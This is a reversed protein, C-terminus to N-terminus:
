ILCNFLDERLVNFHCIKTKTIKSRLNQLINTLVNENENDGNLVNLINNTDQLVITDQELNSDRHASFEPTCDTSGM